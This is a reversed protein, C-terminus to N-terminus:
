TSGVYRQLPEWYMKRWGSDLHEVHEAPFGTHELILLTDAGQAQLDFRVISYVGDDWNGVRWAQVIRENPLLEVHRGTVMGGFCSFSEGAHGGIEAPAGTVEAFQTSDTLAEYVREPRVPFVIEQHITSSV